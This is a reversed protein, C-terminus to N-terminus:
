DYGAEGWDEELGKRFQRNLRMAENVKENGDWMFQLGADIHSIDGDSCYSFLEQVGTDYDELGEFSLEVEENQYEYYGTEEMYSVYANARQNMVEYTPALWALFEDPGMAGMKVKQCVDKFMEYREVVRGGPVAALPGGGPSMRKLSSKCQTCLMASPPNTTGCTLCTILSAGQM